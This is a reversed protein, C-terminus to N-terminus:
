AIHVMTHEAIIWGQQSEHSTRPLLLGQQLQKRIETPVIFAIALATFKGQRLRSQPVVDCVLRQVQQRVTRLSPIDSHAANYQLLILRGSGLFARCPVATHSV